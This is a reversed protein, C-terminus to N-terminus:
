RMSRPATRAGGGFYVSIGVGLSLNSTDAENDFDDELSLTTWNVSADLSVADVPFFRLGGGLGFGLGSADNDNNSASAWGLAAEAFLSLQPAVPFNYTIQPGLFTQSFEDEEGEFEDTGNTLSVFAGIGLNPIVYFYGAGNLDFSSSDFDSVGPQETTTSSYSVQTGGSLQFTGPRIERASAAAPLLLAVLALRAANM